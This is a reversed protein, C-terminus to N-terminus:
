LTWLFRHRHLELGASAEIKRTTTKKDLKKCVVCHHRISKVIRHLGIIWFRSRVKSATASVGGHGQNHIHKAYLRSLNHKQPLLPVECQNYSMEVWREVRGGVVIVGDSRTKPCIRKFKGSELDRRMSKQAELIWFKEAKAIDAPTLVKAANKFSLKQDYQFMALVRARVRILKIYSSHKSLDIRAALSDELKVEATMAMTIKQPLEQVNCEKSVPWETEPLKLFDPGKQWPSNYDIQDPRKGRTLWDAINQWSAIWYWNQPNTGDQIQGIRTAAFTNFGYSEKRVMAYVIQSDVIHFCKSFQYRSEKEILQKLRKNLVAGCLEIRDISMKKIPALRNKSIVLNSDFGGGDMAWRAYACAGYASDSADSFIVLTPNGAANPPKLCREFKINNMDFLDSFFKIWDKKYEEPVPDDWDIKRESAWLQRMMIKARVTFPGALGLQDYISNVQSLIKRKNLNVPIREQIQHPELDPEIHLKRTRESFNLKVRFRFQDAVPNWSVGLVKETAAHKDDPIVMEDRNDPDGSIIWGKVKFGRNDILKEIDRTIDRAKRDDRVSEIIDDVYTNDKIIKAAEPYQEQGMEVTKRLAVTAITGSPKDGFSVRQIVYTDPERRTDMDRWLFRHTNQETPTTKVSHYMKKIDGVLAVENERFRILVGLLSNLLDPGKAWYENLVHGM